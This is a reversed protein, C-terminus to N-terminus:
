TLAMGPAIDADLSTSTYGALLKRGALIGIMAANDTCLIREAVRLTLGSAACASGLEQRLARNATVGGSATICQVNMR